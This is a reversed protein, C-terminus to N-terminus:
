AKAAKERKGLEAQWKSGHRYVEKKWIPVTKKLEDIVYQCAAFAEGRHPCSVAIVV